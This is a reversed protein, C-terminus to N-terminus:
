QNGRLLLAAAATTNRVILNNAYVATMSALESLDKALPHDDAATFEITVRIGDSRNTGAMQTTETM